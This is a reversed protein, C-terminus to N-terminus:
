HSDPNTLNVTTGRVIASCYNLLARYMPWDAISPALAGLIDPEPFGAAYMAAICDYLRVSLRIDPIGSIAMAEIALRFCPNVHIAGERDITWDYSALRIEYLLQASLQGETDPASPMPHANGPTPPHPHPISLVPPLAGLLRVAITWAGWCAPVAILVTLLESMLM